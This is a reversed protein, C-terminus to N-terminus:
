VGLAAAALALVGFLFLWEVSEVFLRKPRVTEPCARSAPTPFANAHM